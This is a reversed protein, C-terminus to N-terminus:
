CKLKEMAEQLRQKAISNDVEPKPPEPELMKFIDNLTAEAAKVDKPDGTYKPEPKNELLTEPAPPTILQQGSELQFLTAKYAIEFAKVRDYEKELKKFNYFDLNKVVVHYLFPNLNQTDRRGNRIFEQIEVYCAEMPPHQAKNAFVCLERFEPATPPWARGCTRVSNLADAM